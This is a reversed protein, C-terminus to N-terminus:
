PVRRRVLLHQPNFPFPWAPDDRLMAVSIRRAGNAAGSRTGPVAGIQSREVIERGLSRRDRDTCPQGAPSAPVIVAFSPDEGFRKRLQRCGDRASGDTQGPDDPEDSVGRTPSRRLPQHPAKAHRHVAGRDELIDLAADLGPQDSRQGPSQCQRNPM